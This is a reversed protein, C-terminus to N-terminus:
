ATVLASQRLWGIDALLARYSIAAACGSALVGCAILVLPHLDGLWWCGGGVVTGICLPVLAPGMVDLTRLPVCRNLYSFYRPLYAVMFLSRVLIATTLGFPLAALFLPVGILFREVAMRLRLDTRDAVMFVRAGVSTVMEIMLSPLALAFILAVDGWPASLLWVFIPRGNLALVVLGPFTLTMLLRIAARYSTGVQEQGAGDRWQRAMSVMTVQSLPGLLAQQPFRFIRETMTWLSVAVTGFVQNFALVPIQAQATLVGSFMLTNVGFKLHPRLLPAQFRFQPRVPSLWLLGVLRVLALVVQQLVLAWYGFGLMALSIAVCVGTLGAFGIVGSMVDFRYDREIAAQHVATLAQMFPVSALVIVVPLLAPQDMAGAYFPAVIAVLGALGLGLATLFWFVTDWETPNYHQVRVLSRGLGADSFTNAFLIVAMGLGVIAFDEISLLRSLLPLSLLQLVVLLARAGMLQGLSAFFNGHASKLKDCM